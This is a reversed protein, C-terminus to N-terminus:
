SLCIAEYSGKCPSFTVTIPSIIFYRLLFIMIQSPLWSGLMSVQSRTDKVRYSNTKSWPQSKRALLTSSSHHTLWEPFQSHRRIPVKKITSSLKWSPKWYEASGGPLQIIDHPFSKSPKRLKLSFFVLIATKSVNSWLILGNSHDFLRLFCAPSLAIAWM